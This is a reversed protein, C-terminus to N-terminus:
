NVLKLYVRIGILYFLYVRIVESNNSIARSYIHVGSFFSGVCVNERYPGVRHAASSIRFFQSEIAYQLNTCSRCHMKAKSLETWM